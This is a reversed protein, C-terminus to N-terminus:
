KGGGDDAVRPALDAIVSQYADNKAQLQTIHGNVKTDIADAKKGNRFSSLFAGIAGIASVAGIWFQPSVLVSACASSSSM